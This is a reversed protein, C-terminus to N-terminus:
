DTTSSYLGDFGVLRKNLFADIRAVASTYVYQIGVSFKISEDQM